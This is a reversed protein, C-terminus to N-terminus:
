VLGKSVLYDQGRPTLELPKRSGDVPRKKVFGNKRLSRILVECEIKLNPNDAIECEYLQHTAILYLMQEEKPSTPIETQPTEIPPPIPEKPALKKLRMNKRIWYNTALLSLGMVVLIWCWMPIISAREKAAKVIAWINDIPNDETLSKRLQSDPWLDQFLYWVLGLIATGLIGITSPLLMERSSGAKKARLQDKTNESLQDEAEKPM